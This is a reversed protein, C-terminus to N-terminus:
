EERREEIEMNSNYWLLFDPPNPCPAALAPLQIKEKM